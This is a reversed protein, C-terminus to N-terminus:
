PSPTVSPHASGQASSPIQRGHRRKQAPTWDLAGIRWLYVLGLLLEGVFIAVVVFGAWGAERVSVAWAYLFLAEIDFIVFFMAILYFKASLRMRAGGQSVVGSEFPENKARGWYRGGLWVPVAVMFFCIFAVFFIYTAVSWHQALLDTSSV